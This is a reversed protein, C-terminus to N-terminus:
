DPGPGPQRATGGRPTPEGGSERVELEDHLRALLQQETPSLREALTDPSPPPVEGPRDEPSPDGPTDPAPEATTGPLGSGDPHDPRLEPTTGVGDPTGNTTDGGLLLHRPQGSGEATGPPPAPADVIPVGPPPTPADTGAGLANPRGADGDPHSPRESPPDALVAGAWAGSAWDRDWADEDRAPVAPGGSPATVPASGNRPADPVGNGSPAPPDDPTDGFWESATALPVSAERLARIPPSPRPAPYLTDAGNPGAGNPGAGNPGTGAPGPGNPGAGNSGTGASGAGTPDRAPPPPPHGPAGYPSSRRRQAGATGSGAEDAQQPAAAATAPATPLGTPPTDATDPEAGGPEAGGPEAGDPASATATTGTGGSMAGSGPTGPIDDVGSPHEAPLHAADPGTGDTAVAPSRVPVSAARAARHYATHPDDDGQVEVSAVLGARALAIQGQYTIVEAAGGDGATALLVPHPLPGPAAGAPTTRWALAGDALEPVAAVAAAIAPGDPGSGAFRHQPDDGADRPLCRDADPQVRRAAAEAVLELRVPGPLGVRGAVLEAVLLELAHGEEGVAVLERGAALLDDDVRGALELLLRYTPDSM